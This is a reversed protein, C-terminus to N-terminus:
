KRRASVHNSAEAGRNYPCTQSFCLMTKTSQKPPKFCLMTEEVVLKVWKEICLRLTKGVERNKLWNIDFRHFWYTETHQVTSNM